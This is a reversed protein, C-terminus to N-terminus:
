LTTYPIYMYVIRINGVAAAAVSGNNRQVIFYYKFSGITSQRSQVALFHNTIEFCYIGSGVTVYVRLWNNNQKIM